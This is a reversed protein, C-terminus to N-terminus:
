RKNSINDNDNDSDSDSTITNTNMPLKMYTMMEHDRVSATQTDWSEMVIAWTWLVQCLGPSILHNMNMNMNTTNNMNYKRDAPMRQQHNWKM